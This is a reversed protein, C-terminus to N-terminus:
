IEILKIVCPLSHPCHRRTFFSNILYRIDCRLLFLTTLLNTSGNPLVHLKVLGIEDPVSARHGASLDDCERLCHASVSDAM